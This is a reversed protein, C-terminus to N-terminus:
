SQGASYLTAATFSTVDLLAWLSCCLTPMRKKKKKKKERETKTWKYSHDKVHDASAQVITIGWMVCAGTWCKQWVVWSIVGVTWSHHWQHGGSPCGTPHQFFNGSGRGRKCFLIHRNSVVEHVWNCNSEVLKRVKYVQWLKNLRAYVHSGNSIRNHSTLHLQTVCNKLTMSGYQINAFYFKTVLSGNVM